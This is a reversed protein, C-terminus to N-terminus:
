PRRPQLTVAVTAADAAVPVDAQSRDPANVRVIYPTAELVDLTFRGEGDTEAYAASGYNRDRDSPPAAIVRAKAVPSGDPRRVVGTLTRKGLKSLVISGANFFGAADLTIIEAGARTLSPAATAFYTVPYPADKRPGLSLNVGLLYRGPPVGDFQFFGGEDTYADKYRVEQGAAPEALRLQAGRHPVPQGSSDVLRGIIRGNVATYFDAAACAHVNPLNLVQQAVQRLNVPLDASVRYEGPPLDGFRFEGSAGTRATQRVPGGLTIIVDSLPTRESQTRSDFENGFMRVRGGIWGGTSPRSLSELFAIAEGAKEIPRTISCIGTGIRGDYKRRYGGILYRQGIKFDYGCDGADNGTVVADPPDGIWRKVDTLRVLREMYPRGLPPMPEGEHPEISVVTADFVANARWITQCVPEVTKCSCAVARSLWGDACAFVVIFALTRIRWGSM